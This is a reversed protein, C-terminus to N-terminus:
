DQRRGIVFYLIPGILNVFVIIILWLWKPGNTKEIRFWDFLAVLMLIFQIVLFPAIVALNLQDLETLIENM